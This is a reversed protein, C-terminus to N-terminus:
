WAAKYNRPSSCEAKGVENAKRKANNTKSVIKKQTNNNKNNENTFEFDYHEFEFRLYKLCILHIIEPFIRFFFFAISDIMINQM